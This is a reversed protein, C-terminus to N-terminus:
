RIIKFQLWVLDGVSFLFTNFLEFILNNKINIYHQCLETTRQTIPKKM